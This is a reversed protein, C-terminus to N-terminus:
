EFNHGCMGCVGSEIRAPYGCDPCPRRERGWGAGQDCGLLLLGAVIVTLLIMTAPPGRWAPPLTMTLGVALLNLVVLAAISLELPSDDM